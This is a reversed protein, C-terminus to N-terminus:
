LIFLPALGGVLYPLNDALASTTTPSIAFLSGLKESLLSVFTEHDKEGVLHDSFARLCEHVGLRGMANKTDHYDKHARLLGQFVQPSTWTDTTDVPISTLSDDDDYQQLTGYSRACSLPMCPQGCCSLPIANCTLLQCRPANAEKKPRSSRHDCKRWRDWLQGYLSHLPYIMSAM